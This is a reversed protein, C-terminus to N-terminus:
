GGPPQDRSSERDRHSLLLGQDLLWRVNAAQRADKRVKLPDRSPSHALTEKISAFVEPDITPMYAMEGSASVIMEKFRPASTIADGSDVQVAWLTNEDLSEDLAMPHPDRNRHPRRIFDVEFGQDNAATQKQDDLVRFSRDAKRLVSLLSTDIRKLDGLMRLHRQADFFLDVDRTALSHGSFHAGAATEYAYLAHTGVVLFNDLIGAKDLAQLLHVVVLPAHGVRLARNMRKHRELERSLNAHTATLTAKRQQFKEFVSELDPSRKGLSRQGGYPTTKILYDTGNVARFFMSSPVRSLEHECTRLQAFVRRADVLQRTQDDDLPQVDIDNESPFVMIQLKHQFVNQLLSKCQLKRRNASTVM